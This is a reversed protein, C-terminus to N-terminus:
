LYDEKPFFESLFPCESTLTMSEGTEPHSLTLKYAHLRYVTGERRRGYLFDDCLPHGVHALHVRIQHTRGTMLQVRLLSTDEGTCVTEYQTLARKGDERVVRRMGGECERAIPLDIVGSPPDLHGDVVALYEKKWEGRKMGESLRYAAEANKAILVIGSTERDLRNIARFVFARDRYYHMVAGALTPLSNGRSPHVPMGTPKTVALLWAEEYIIDLPIDIPAIDSAEEPYVVTVVDGEGVTARVTVCEGNRYLGGYKIKKLATVSVGIESLLFGKLSRQDGRVTYQRTM